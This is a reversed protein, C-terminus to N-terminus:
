ALKEVNDKPKARDLLAHYEEDSLHPFLAKGFRLRMHIGGQDTLASETFHTHRVVENLGDDMSVLVPVILLGTNTAVAQIFAMRSLVHLDNLTNYATNSRLKLVDAASEGGHLAALFLLHIPDNSPLGNAAALAILQGEVSRRKNKAVSGRVLPAALAWYSSRADWGTERYTTFVQAVM